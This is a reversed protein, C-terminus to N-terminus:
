ILKGRINPFFAAQFCDLPQGISLTVSMRDSFFLKVCVLRLFHENLVSKTHGTSMEVKM